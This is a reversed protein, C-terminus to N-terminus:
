KHRYGRLGTNRAIERSITCQPRGLEKGIKSLTKENKLSVEIYHSEELSLHKNSM